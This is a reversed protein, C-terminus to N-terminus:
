TRMPRSAATSNHLLLMHCACVSLPASTFYTPFSFAMAIMPLSIPFIEILRALFSIKVGDGRMPERSCCVRSWALGLGDPLQLKAM